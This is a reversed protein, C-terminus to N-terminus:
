ATGSVIMRSGTGFPLVIENEVRGDIRSLVFTTLGNADCRLLGVLGDDSSLSGPSLFHRMGIRRHTSKESEHVIVAANAIDDEELVSKDHVLLVIRDALMEVALAPPPPLARIRSLRAAQLEAAVLGEIEQSTGRLAVAAAARLFMEESAVRAGPMERVARDFLDDVGLYLIPDADIEGVLLEFARRLRSVSDCAGVLGIQIM